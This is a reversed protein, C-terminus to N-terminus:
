AQAEGSVKAAKVRKRLNALANGVRTGENWAETLQEQLRVSKAEAEALRETTSKTYCQGHGNPCYYTADKGKELLHRRFEVTMAFPVGCAYCTELYLELVIGTAFISQGRM